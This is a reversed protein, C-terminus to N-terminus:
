ALALASQWRPPLVRVQGDAAARGHCKRRRCMAAPPATAGRAAAGVAAAAASAPCAARRGRSGSGRRRGAATGGSSAQLNHVANMDWHVHHCELCSAHGCLPLHAPVRCCAAVSVEEAAQLLSDAAAADADCLSSLPVMTRHWHTQNISGNHTNSKVSDVRADTMWFAGKHASYSRPSDGEDSAELSFDSMDNFSMGSSLGGLV